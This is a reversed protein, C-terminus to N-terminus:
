DQHYKCFSHTCHETDPLGPACVLNRPGHCGLVASATAIIVPSALALRVVDRRGVAARLPPYPDASECFPDESEESM